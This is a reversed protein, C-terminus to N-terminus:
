EDYKEKNVICMNAFAITSWGDRHFEPGLLYDLGIEKLYQSAAAHGEVSYDFM